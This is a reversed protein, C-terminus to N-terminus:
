ATQKERLDKYILYAYYLAFPTVIISVLASALTRIEITQNLGFSNFVSNIAAIVLILLMIRVFVDWWYGKVLEKSRKFADLYKRGEFIYVYASAFGWVLFIIGPIILLLLGGAIILGTVIGTLLFPVIHPASNRFTDSINGRPSGEVLQKLIYFAATSAWINVVLGIVSLLLFQFSKPNFLVNAIVSPLLSIGLIPAFVLWNKKYFSWTQKFLETIPIITKKSSVSNEM